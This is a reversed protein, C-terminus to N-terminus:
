ENDRNETTLIWGEQRGIEQQRIIKYNKSNYVVRMTDLVGADYRITFIVTSVNVEQSAEFKDDSGSTRGPYDLRAPVNTAYNTWTPTQSAGFADDAYSVSQITIYRDLRGINM